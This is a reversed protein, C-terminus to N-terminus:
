LCKMFPQSTQLFCSGTLFATIIAGLLAGKIKERNHPKRMLIVLLFFIVILQLLGFIVGSLNWPIEISIYDSIPVKRNICQKIIKGIFDTAPQYSLYVYQGVSIFVIFMVTNLGLILALGKM